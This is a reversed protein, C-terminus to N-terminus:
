KVADVIARGLLTGSEFAHEALRGLCWDGAVGVLHETSFLYTEGLSTDVLGNSWLHARMQSPREPAISLLHCVESWMEEAVDDPEVDETERSWAQGAHIVLHEGKGKRGPKVNNRGIWRVVQSMDSFVDFEPLVPREFRLALSWIPAMRVREMPESLEPIGGLILQAAPAPVAVAIAAFPGEHTQDDFWVHWGKDVRQITHVRRELHIRVSEALPRVVSSMGPVGVYWDLLQGGGEPGHAIKPQWPAAYGTKRLETIYDRFRDGRASLYQAGHDFPVIGLRMTAMRGAISKNQEFVEVYCGARRLVRACSLGALGGGIVAIRHTV